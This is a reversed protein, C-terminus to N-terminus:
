IIKLLLVENKDITINWKLTENERILQYVDGNVINVAKSYDKNMKLAVRVNKKGNIFFNPHKESVYNTIIVYGCKEGELYHGDIEKCSRNAYDLSLKPEIGQKLLVSDVVDWLLYSQKELYAGDPHTAFFLGYGKGYSNLTVAPTDDDFRAIVETNHPEISIVEKHWCGCYNKHNFTVNPNTAAYTDEVKVGFVKSLNFCPIQHNYWGYKGLMGCRPTGILMGGQKVYSDLNKSLEEDIVAMLPMYIVKYKNAYGNQLHEPTVFDVTYGKEWFVRYAGRMADMLYKEQGMGNLVISNEKSILIGIEGVCNKAQFIEKGNEKLISGIKEAAKTRETPNGDLDVIAGWHLPQFDWERWGQYLTLKADHGVAEFVNRILDFGKVNRSPGMVWGNIPGSETELLWYDKGLPKSTSRAMDLFMSSFEPTSELKNGSGPYLDYGIYDVVKAMEFQDLATLVGLPDQSKLFFINTTTPHKSDMKKILKDQWSVFDVYNQMSFLRWDLWRTVSSWSTPKTKPPEIEEWTTHCTNTAGWRYAYNLQDLSKYKDKLWSRFKNQTNQCYCYIDIDGNKLPMFPFGIENHIQYAYLAPHDKYRGILANIYRESEELYGKHDICAWTYSVNNPYQEGHNNVINADPYEKHIWYPPSATGTGLLIKLEYKVCLDFFDDLFQFNFKGKEPEIRDWTNFLEATRILQIGSQKMLKLDKEWDQKEHMLPYYGAAYIFRDQEM